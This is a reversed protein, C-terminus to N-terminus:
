PKLVLGGDVFEIGEREFAMRILVQSGTATNRADREFDM